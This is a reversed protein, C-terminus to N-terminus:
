PLVLPHFLRAAMQNVTTKLHDEQLDLRVLRRLLDMIQMRRLKRRPAVMVMKDNILDIVVMGRVGVAVVGGGEEEEAETLAEPTITTIGGIEITANENGNVSTEEGTTGIMEQHAVGDAEGDAAEEKAVGVAIATMSITRAVSNVITRVDIFIETIPVLFSIYIVLVESVTSSLFSYGPVRSFLYDGDLRRAFAGAEITRVCRRVGLFVSRESMSTPFFLDM